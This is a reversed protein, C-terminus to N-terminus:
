QPHIVNPSVPNLEVSSDTQSEGFALRRRREIERRCTLDLYTSPEMPTRTLTDAKGKQEFTSGDTVFLLTHTAQAANLKAFDKRFSTKQQVVLDNKAGSYPVTTKIEAVIREGNPSYVDVDLGSAGQAKAAADFDTIAFHEHLYRTLYAIAHRERRDLWGTLVM